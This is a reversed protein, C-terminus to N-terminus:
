IPPVLDLKLNLNLIVQERAEYQEILDKLKTTLQVNEQILMNNKESNQGVQTNIEDIAGQKFFSVILNCIM